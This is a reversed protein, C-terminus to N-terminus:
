QMLMFMFLDYFKM